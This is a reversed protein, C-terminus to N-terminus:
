LTRKSGAFFKRSGDVASQVYDDNLLRVFETFENKDTPIVLKGKKIDVKLGPVKSKLGHAANKLAAVNITGSGLV